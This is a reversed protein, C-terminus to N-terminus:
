TRAKRRSCQQSLHVSCQRSIITAMKELSKKVSAVIVAKMENPLESVQGVAMGENRYVAAFLLLARHHPYIL